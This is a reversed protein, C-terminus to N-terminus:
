QWVFYRANYKGRSYLPTKRFGRRLCSLASPAPLARAPWVVLCRYRVVCHTKKKVFAGLLHDMSDPADDSDEYNQTHHYEESGAEHIEYLRSKSDEARQLINAVLIQKLSALEAPASVRVRASSM